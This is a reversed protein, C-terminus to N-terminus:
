GRTVEILHAYPSPDIRADILRPRDWTGATLAAALAAREDVATADLGLARAVAAFDVPRYQVATDGGHSARQKVKILSLVADDFVVVTIPLQLRAITELEALTMGLGGDGVFCVVPRDPRALAAGIAAPVAFGMTALGNSILLRRPEHAPWFPMVALFHAGADVTATADAPAAAIVADVLDIPGLGVEAHDHLARRVASRHAAGADGDWDHGPPATLVADLLVDLAGTLAVRAPVYTSTVATPFITVVPADFRWPAPIPEVPDLGVAVILDARDLLARESAGNTFLGAGTPGESDVIGVGQYTALVPWGVRDLLTRVGDAWPLAGNGVVAVPRRAAAVLARAAAIDAARPGPPMPAVPPRTSAATPDDDLHVAGALPATALALAAAAVDDHADRGLVGSWKTIPAMLARQDLRQHDIRAADAAAVTDTLMVLPFRDLTAQAVGNTASTAGPGRTALALSPRGTVFGHTAAMIVAATEGHALVFRVDADDLAGVVDLNPGGGPVGFACPAGSRALAEALARAADVSM